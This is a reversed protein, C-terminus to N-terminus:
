HHGTLSSQPGSEPPLTARVENGRGSIGIADSGISGRLLQGAAAIESELVQTYIGLTVMPSAHGMLRQATSVHVGSTKLLYAYTRRLSHITVCHPRLARALARRDRSFRAFYGLYPVTRVGASSKTPGELSRVIHVAGDRIDTELLAAAEGWRLGHLALFRVHDTYRGRPGFEIATIQEWTLFARSNSAAPQIRIGECVSRDLLGQSIGERTLTRFMMLTQQASPSPLPSLATLLDRRSIEHLPLHGLPSQLYRRYAGRYNELTKRALPLSDFTLQAFTNLNM